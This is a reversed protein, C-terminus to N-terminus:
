QMGKSQLFPVYLKDEKMIHETVWKVLFDLISVSIALENREFKDILDKLQRVLADHTYTHGEANEYGYKKFAAEEHSFHYQTYDVLEALVSGMVEKTKRAINKFKPSLM